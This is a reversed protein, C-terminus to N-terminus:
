NIVVMPMCPRGLGSTYVTQYEAVLLHLLLLIFLIFLLAFYVIFILYRKLKRTDLKHIGSVM